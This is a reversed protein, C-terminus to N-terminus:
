DASKLYDRLTRLDNLFIDKEKKCFEDIYKKYMAKRLLQLLEDARIFRKGAKDKGDAETCKYGATEPMEIHTNMEDIDCLKINKIYTSLKAKAKENIAENLKNIKEGEENELEM